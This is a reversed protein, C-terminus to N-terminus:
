DIMTIVIMYGFYLIHLAVFFQRWFMKGKVDQARKLFMQASEPTTTDLKTKDRLLYKVLRVLWYLIIALTPFIFLDHRTAFGLYIIELYRMFAIFVFPLTIALIKISTVQDLILNTTHKSVALQAARVHNGQFSDRIFLLIYYMLFVISFVSFM